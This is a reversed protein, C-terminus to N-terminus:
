SSNYCTKFKLPPKFLSLSSNYGNGHRRVDVRQSEFVFIGVSTLSQMNKDHFTLKTM